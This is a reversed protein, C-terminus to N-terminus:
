VPCRSSGSNCDGSTCNESYTPCGLNADYCGGLNNKAKSCWYCHGGANNKASSCASCTTAGSCTSQKTLGEAVKYSVAIALLVLPIFFYWWKINSKARM